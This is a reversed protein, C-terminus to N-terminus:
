IGDLILNLKKPWKLVLRGGGRRRCLRGIFWVWRWNLTKSLFALDILCMKQFEFILLAVHLDNYDNNGKPYMDFCYEFSQYYPQCNVYDIVNETLIFTLLTCLLPFLQLERM